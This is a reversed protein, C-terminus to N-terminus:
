GGRSAARNAQQQAAPNDKWTDEDMVIRFGLHSM